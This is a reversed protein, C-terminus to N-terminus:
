SLFVFYVAFHSVLPVVTTSFCDTTLADVAELIRTTRPSACGSTWQGVDSDEDFQVHGDDHVLIEEM